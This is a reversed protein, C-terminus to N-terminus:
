AHAGSGVPRARERLAAFFQPLEKWVEVGGWLGRWHTRILGVLKYCEDVPLLFYEAEAAGSRKGLRNALLCEVDTEISGLIPNAAVLEQWADLPLLSEVAGAPGPYSAKVRGAVSDRYFYAMDIPIALDEWLQDPARFDRVVQIRRPVRLFKSDTTSFLIACPDCACIVTRHSPEFLHQHAPAVPAACLECRERPAPQRVLQRLNQFGDRATELSQPGM